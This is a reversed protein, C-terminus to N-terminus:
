ACAWTRGTNSRSSMVERRAIASSFTVKRGGGRASSPSRAVAAACNRAMRPQHGADVDGKDFAAQIWDYMSKGMGIGITAKAASWKINSIHKMQINDPGLDNTVVDGM